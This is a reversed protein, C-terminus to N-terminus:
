AAGRGTRFHLVRHQGLANRLQQVTSDPVGVPTVLRPEGGETVVRLTVPGLSARRAIENVDSLFRPPAKGRSLRARGQEVRIACLENARGLALWVLAVTVTLALLSWVRTV